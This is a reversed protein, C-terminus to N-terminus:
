AHALDVNEVSVGGDALQALYGVFVLQPFRDAIIAKVKALEQIQFAREQDYAGLAASGGYAGCDIHAVVHVETTGHLAHSLEVQKLAFERSADDLFAKGAGAWGVLDADGFLGRETFFATLGNIFRFDMCHVVIARCTHSM